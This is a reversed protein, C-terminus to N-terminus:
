KIIKIIFIQHNDMRWYSTFRNRQGLVVIHNIIVPIYKTKLDYYVYKNNYGEERLVYISFRYKKNYIFYPIM